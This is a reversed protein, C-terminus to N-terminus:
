GAQYGAKRVAERLLEIDVPKDEEYTAEGRALDVKVNRIGAVASLAKTVAMVCHQCSMGEIRITKM